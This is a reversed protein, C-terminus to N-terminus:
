RTQVDEYGCAQCRYSYQRAGLDGLGGPLPRSSELMFLPERCRPCQDGTAPALRAELAAIRKQLQEVEAPLTVLRKWAPIRELTRMVDELMGM